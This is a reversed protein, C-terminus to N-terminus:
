NNVAWNALTWVDKPIQGELILTNLVQEDGNFLALVTKNMDGDTENLNSMLKSLSGNGLRKAALLGFLHNLSNTKITINTKDVIRTLLENRQEPKDMREMTLATLFDQPREDPDYPKGVGINEPWEKSKKLVELAKENENKKLYSLAVALHAREYIERSESAHEFPLVQINKLVEIVMEFSGSNLLTKAHALGINYNKPYKKYAKSSLMLAEQFMNNALYFQLIEETLKWDNPNLAFAKQYDALEKEMQEGKNLIARFRYFIDSDPQYACEELLQLAEKKKGVVMYNQALYYKLKWSNNQLSAWELVPITERRYPFVLNVKESLAENLLRQSESSNDDKQLYAAWLWNKVTKSGELLSALAETSYGIEHYRLAIGLITEQDFENEIEPLGPTNGNGKNDTRNIEQRAIFNFPDVNLIGQAHDKLAIVDGQRKASFLLVERSNINNLNYTLSKAAYSEARNYNKDKLSIEAMQAYATSRYKMDRAAWGFSELANLHDGLARYTIGAIYNAKSNYTDMKLVTDALELAREYNTRRYELEALALLGSRHSPDLAILESLKEHSLTYERYELAELGAQFLDEARSVKLNKDPYFPRKIHKADPNNTYELETGLITIEIDESDSAPLKTSFVEMPKLNLKESFAIVGNIKIQLEQNLDQLANVGVYMSGNEYEVNLVGHKSTDEMGGIEKYPFWIESWTDMVFPDFGVQSIPNTAGPNYQDFLRGAQFEIYQGDSDTLLDEWIGGARSLAWLWLKQGPMEEYPSWQGYGFNKDHYYGGFFDNYEGVVHYSKAPGFTNNKYMALNRGEEDVPWPHANGNHEVYKNGPIFFELDNTAVAAATMWNYYSATLPSANYWSANTEFYAKDKELRIEVTWRTNSTLDTNGVICSVSGDDNTRTYYDVPTATAPHHGIIGFNFEIGGSTWPGRMAINRFKIVENKYLFEEGTSKEIAGWVKGGIEPLVWLKIYDNELTIVKWDKKVSSHAYGDFKFYPPIKPNDGVIPVPNPTNFPYTDILKTEETISALSQGLVNCISLSLLITILRVKNM